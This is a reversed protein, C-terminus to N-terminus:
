TAKTVHNARSWQCATAKQEASRAEFTDVPARKVYLDKVHPEGLVDTWRVRWSSAARRWFAEKRPTDFSTGGEGAEGDGGSEAAAIEERM